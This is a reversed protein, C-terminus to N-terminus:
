PEKASLPEAHLADYAHNKHLYGVIRLCLGIAYRQETKRSWFFLAPSRQLTFICAKFLNFPIRATHTHVPKQTPKNTPESVGFPLKKMPQM